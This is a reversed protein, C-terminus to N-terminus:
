LSSAPEYGESRMCNIFVLYFKMDPSGTGPANNGIRTCKAKDHDFQLTTAPEPHHQWTAVERPAAYHSATSLKPAPRPLPFSGAPLPTAEGLLSGDSTCAAVALGVILTVILGGLRAYM